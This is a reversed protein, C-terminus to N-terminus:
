RYWGKRGIFLFSFVLQSPHLLKDNDPNFDNRNKYQYNIYFNYNM